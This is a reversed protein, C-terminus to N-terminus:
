HRLRRRRRLRRNAVASWPLSGRPFRSTGGAFSLRLLLRARAPVERAGLAAPAGPRLALRRGLALRDDTELLGLRLAAAALLAAADDDRVLGVLRDDDLYVHDLLVGLVLLHHTPADLEVGVVLAVLGPDAIGDPDDLGAREGLRLVPAERLDNLLRPLRLGMIWCSVRRFTASLVPARSSSQM